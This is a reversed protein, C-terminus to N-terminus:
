SENSGKSSTRHRSRGDSGESQRLAAFLAEDRATPKLLEAFDRVRELV